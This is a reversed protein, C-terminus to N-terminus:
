KAAGDGFWKLVLKEVEGNEKMEKLKENFEDKLKSDKKFAIASGAEESGDEILSGVLEKNDELYGKSVTDEIVAADFRGSIIQQVIEPIRNLKEVKIDLKEEKVLDTVLGEQISALQVGVTKGELDAPTKIDSGKKTIIMNRSTYYTDSFDVTKIREPTPTMGALVLDAQGNELAPILGNFDIDKPKVEYGLKKGLAKALDVDFGKIEEGTATEVFEFPPYDASTGMILVNKDTDNSSGTSSEDKDDSTGCATLVGALIVSTFVLGFRRKLKM